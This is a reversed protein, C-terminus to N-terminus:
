LAPVAEKTPVARIGLLFRSFDDVLAVLPLNPSDATIPWISRARSTLTHWLENPSTREYARVPCM